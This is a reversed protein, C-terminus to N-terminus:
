AGAGEDTGEKHGLDREAHGRDGCLPHQGRAIATEGDAQVAIRRIRAAVEVQIQAIGRNPFSELGKSHAAGVVTRGARGIRHLQVVVGQLEAVAFRSRTTRLNPPHDHEPVGERLALTHLLGVDVWARQLPSQIRLTSPLPLNEVETVPPRVERDEAIGELPEQVEVRVDHDVPHHEVITLLRGSEAHPM